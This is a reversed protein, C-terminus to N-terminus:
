EAVVKWGMGSVEHRGLPNVPIAIAHSVLQGDQTVVWVVIHAAPAMEASAPLSFTTVTPPTLDGVPERGSHLVVGEGLVQIDSPRPPPYQPHVTDNM